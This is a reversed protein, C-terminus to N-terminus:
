ASPAHRAEDERVVFRMEMDHMSVYHGNLDLQYQLRLFGGLEDLRYLARTCFVALEMSGFPTTYQGEYRRGKRFVMNTEIEGTRLMTVADEQMSLQVKTPEATEDLQEEYRILAGDRQPIMEGSTFLHMEDAVEGDASVTANLTILIPIGATKVM